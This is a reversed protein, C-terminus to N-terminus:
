DLGWVLVTDFRRKQADELIHSLEKQHGAKWASEQEQYTKIVEFGRKTSWDLLVAIQNNNDQEGTSVRSYICVKMNSWGTFVQLDCGECTQPTIYIHAHASM